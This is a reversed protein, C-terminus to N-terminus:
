YNCTIYGGNKYCITNVHLGESEGFMAFGNYALEGADGCERKKINCYM